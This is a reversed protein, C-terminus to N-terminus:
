WLRLLNSRCLVANSGQGLHESPSYKNVSYLFTLHVLCGTINLIYSFSIEIEIKFLPSYMELGNYQMAQKIICHFM